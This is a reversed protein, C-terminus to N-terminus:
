SSITCPQVMNIECFQFYHVKKAFEFYDHFLQCNFSHCSAVTTSASAASISVAGVVVVSCHSVLGVAASRSATTVAAGVPAFHWRILQEGIKAWRAFNM